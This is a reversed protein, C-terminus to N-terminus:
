RPQWRASEVSLRVSQRRLRERHAPLRPPRVTPLVIAPPSSSRPTVRVVGAIALVVFIAAAVFALLALRM